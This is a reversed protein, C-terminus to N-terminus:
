YRLSEKEGTTKSPIKKKKCNIQGFQSGFNIITIVQYIKSEKTLLNRGRTRFTTNKTKSLKGCKPHQETDDHSRNM